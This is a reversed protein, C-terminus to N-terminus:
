STACTYTTCATAAGCDSDMTCGACNGAGDCALNGTTGCATGSPAPPHSPAGNSCIDQTCPNSDNPVDTNDAVMKTGGMGDCVVQQCDGATQHSTPFGVPKNSMGCKGGTCVRQACDSDAGPCDTAAKCEGGGTTSAGTGSAGGMGGMGSATGTPHSGTSSQQGA